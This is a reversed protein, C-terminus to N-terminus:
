IRVAKGYMWAASEIERLSKNLCAHFAHNRNHNKIYRFPSTLLSYMAFFVVCFPSGLFLQYIVLKIMRNRYDTLETVQDPSLVSVAAQWREFFSTRTSKFKCRRIFVCSIITDFFSVKHGFRLFGNMTQRLLKYAESSFPIPGDAAKDFLEDRLSFVEHRFYDLALRKLFYIYIVWLFLATIFVELTGVTISTM